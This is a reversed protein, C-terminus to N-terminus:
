CQGGLFAGYIPWLAGEIKEIMSPGLILRTEYLRGKDDSLLFLPSLLVRARLVLFFISVATTSMGSM